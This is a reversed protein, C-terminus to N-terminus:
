KELKRNRFFLNLFSEDSYNPVTSVFGYFDPGLGEFIADFRNSVEFKTEAYKEDKNVKILVPNESMLAYDLKEKWIEFTTPAVPENFIHYSKNKLGVCFLSNSVNDCFGCFGCDILDNSLYCFKSNEISNCNVILESWSIKQSRAIQSSVKVDNCSVIKESKSINKSEKIYSSDQVRESNYIFYGNSVFSSDYVEVSDQVEKSRIVTKSSEVINSDWVNQSNYVKCREWYISQEKETLNVYKRIYHVIPLDVEYNKFLDKVEVKLPLTYLKSLKDLWDERFGYLNIADDTLKM